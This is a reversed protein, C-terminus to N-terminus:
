QPEVAALSDKVARVVAAQLVKNTLGVLAGGSAKSAASAKATMVHRLHNEPQTTISIKVVVTVRNVGTSESLISLESISGGFRYGPSGPAEVIDYRSGAQARLEEGLYKEFAEFTTPDATIGPSADIAFLVARGVNETVMVPVATKALLKLADGAQARVFPHTDKVARELADKGRADGLEGLAFCALGRVLHEEDKEAAEGLVVFARDEAQAGGKLQKTLVRIAQLRVKFSPDSRISTYIKTFSVDAGATTACALLAVVVWRLPHIM